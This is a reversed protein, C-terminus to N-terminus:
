YEIEWLFLGNADASGSSKSRNKSELIAKFDGVSLKGTGVDFLTGVTARVMNRLFRNSTYEFYWSDESDKFWKAKFVDCDHSKVDTNTKSFTTFDHKGVLLAAAENMIDFDLPQPFYTSHKSAFPNKRLHVFYRYTRKTASFRAHKESEVEFINQVSISTPLMKNLKYLLQISDVNENLDAHFFYQKAHVGTDTRGCGVISVPINSNLRTLTTEITEQVSLQKPQNQWGFYDTGDYSIEFFYRM